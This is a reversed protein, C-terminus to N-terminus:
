NIRAVLEPSLIKLCLFCSVLIKSYSSLNVCGGRRTPSIKSLKPYLLRLDQMYTARILTYLMKQGNERSIYKCCFLSNTSQGQKIRCSNVFIKLLFINYVSYRKFYKKFYINKLPLTLNSGQEKRM